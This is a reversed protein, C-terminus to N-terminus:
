ISIKGVTCIFEEENKQRVQNDRTAKQFSVILRCKNKYYQCKSFSDIKVIVIPIFLNFLLGVLGPQGYLYHTRQKVSLYHTSRKGRWVRPFFFNSSFFSVCCKVKVGTSCKQYLFCVVSERCVLAASRICLLTM